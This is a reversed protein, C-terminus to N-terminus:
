GRDAAHGTVEELWREALWRAISVPASLVIGAEAGTGEGDAHRWDRALGARVEDPHFWRADELEDGVVPEDPEAESLFGLMLAGP